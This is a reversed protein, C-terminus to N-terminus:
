NLQGVVSEGVVSLVQDVLCDISSVVSNVEWNPAGTKSELQQVDDLSVIWSHESVNVVLSSDSMREGDDAVSSHQEVHGFVQVLDRLLLVQVEEVVLPANSGLGVGVSGSQVREVGDQGGSEVVFILDENGQHLGLVVGDVSTLEVRFLVVELPSHRGVVVQVGDHSALVEGVEEHLLGSLVEVLESRLGLQVAVEDVVPVSHGERGILGREVLDVENRVELFSNLALELRV